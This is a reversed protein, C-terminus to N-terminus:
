EDSQRLGLGLEELKHKVEDLSKKGLNRVKMMDEESRHTLEEVTNIAARKLCNFSRVSLELEEITMELAKEKQDEEKEVMIEMTDTSDTLEIFLNLHEQMIKAGISVGESPTISGDTWIELILKDYDTVQGVRTNEVTFNVKRVPTYISDTPIVAIPTSETKNQDASVYGRGRALNMEMVLTANEELTAIHLDPNCIELDSDGIIDAATVEKPGIANILVKKTNEGSLKIALKKLNLIIETVDEKVGPITSFEHLIGDIKVSTVAVGPLSSLLIRRLSNGLTTGYGRELPEVVFKGYNPDENSFVCEITPKEIEIM